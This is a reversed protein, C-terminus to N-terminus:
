FSSDTDFVNKHKNPGGVGSKAYEGVRKEFFNTKGTLSISEMFPFPNTACYNKPCGLDTLLRDACFQVYQVMLGANMGILAIPLAKRVFECEIEVAEKIIRTALYPPCPRLLMKHLAVAFNCHLGEDRSILENSFCLGPLIGRQKLWFIGCFSSSFFIGEIAAFAILRTAFTHQKSDCWNLAYDGKHKITPIMEMAHFLDIKRKTDDATLTDILLSYTEGHITEMAAQFTYFARAEPAQVERAFNTVLNEVVIGDSAAFFALTMLIFHQEGGNLADFDAKDNRLDIEEATWFSAVHQKYMDWLHLHEIPYIVFRDPNPALLPEPGFAPSLRPPTPAIANAMVAEESYSAYYEDTAKKENQVFKRTKSPETGKSNTRFSAFHDITMENWLERAFMREREEKKPSPPKPTYKTM